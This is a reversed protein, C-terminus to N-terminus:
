NQLEQLLRQLKKEINPGQEQQQLTYVTRDGDLMFFEMATAMSGLPGKILVKDLIPEQTQKNRLVISWHRQAQGQISFEIDFYQQLLNLDGTLMAKFAAIQRGVPEDGSFAMRHKVASFPDFYLLNDAHAGMLERQPYWQEKVMSFPAAAYLYGSGQWPENLYAMYRQEQYHVKVAQQSRMRSLVSQLTEQSQMEAQLPVSFCCLLVFYWWVPCPNCDFLRFIM